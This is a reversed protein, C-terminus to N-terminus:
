VWGYKQALRDIIFAPKNTTIFIPDLTYTDTQWLSPDTSRGNVSPKARNQPNGFSGKDQPSVRETRKNLVTKPVIKTQQVDPFITRKPTYDPALVTQSDTWQAAKGLSDIGVTLITTYKQRNLEEEVICHVAELVVWYGSYPESIGDLFVPMDPRLNPHGIVEVTARYPFYNRNEAAEAEYGAVASDTAVVETAFRDFFEIQTKTRTKASRIQQTLSIPAKNIIDVGGIAVAAKTADEYQISEGIIPKFSYISSGQPDNAQRMEFKPAESRYKTFDQMIPQFYLETNQTRLTYGCQKALRVMIEWDSHGAQAVQPYVRPHNVAYVAFNYKAAIQKIVDDATVNKYIAQQQQKMAFSAGIVVVESFNNGPTRNVNIHHIYGYFDRKENNGYITAQVPFGPRIVDYELGWDKFNLTLLEHHYRKQHLNASYVIKPQLTTEPFNVSIYNFM